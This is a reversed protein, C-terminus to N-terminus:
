AGGKVASVAPPPATYLETIHPRTGYEREIKRAVYDARGKLSTFLLTDILVAAPVCPPCDIRWAVPEGRAAELEAVRARYREALHWPTWYGDAMPVPLPSPPALPGDWRLGYRPLGDGDDPRPPLEPKLGATAEAVAEMIADACRRAADGRSIMDRLIVSMVQRAIEEARERNM